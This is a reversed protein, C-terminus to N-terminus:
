QLLKAAPINLLHKKKSQLLGPLFTRLAGNLSNKKFSLIFVTWYEIDKEKRLPMKTEIGIEAVAFILRERM